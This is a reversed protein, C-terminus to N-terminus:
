RVEVVQGKKPETMGLRRARLELTARDKLMALEIELQSRERELRTQVQKAFSIEYGLNTVELRLWVSVMCLAVLVLFLLLVRRVLLARMARLLRRADPGAARVLPRRVTLVRPSTDAKM